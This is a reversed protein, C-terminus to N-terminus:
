YTSDHAELTLCSRVRLIYNLYDHVSVLRVCAAPNELLEWSRFAETMASAAADEADHLTAGVAAVVRVVSRYHDRFFDDFTATKGGRAPTPAPRPVARHAPPPPVVAGIDGAGSSSTMAY